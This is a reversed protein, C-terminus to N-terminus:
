RAPPSRRPPSPPGAGASRDRPTTPASRRRPPKRRAHVFFEVAGRAGPLPSRMSGLVRWGAERIGRKAALLARNFADDDIPPEALGLEFQPKVLAVLDAGPAVEIRDLQPVARALSLYSVDITVVDVPEPVLSRDLRGLNTRELVVVREDVRLSGLLQGHGADVAYVRLAGAQLLARTFGGAAAGVDLAVRGRVDVDFAALAPRLKAEGRLPEEKVVTLRADQRVLSRPNRVPFGDVLVCGDLILREPDAV